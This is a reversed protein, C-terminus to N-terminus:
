FLMNKTILQEMLLRLVKLQLLYIQKLYIKLIRNFNSRKCCDKGTYQFSQGEKVKAVLDSKVYDKQDVVFTVDKSTGSYPSDEKATATVTMKDNANKATGSATVTFYKWTWFM